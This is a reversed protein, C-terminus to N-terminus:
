RENTAEDSNEKFAPADLRKAEVILAARQALEQARQALEDDTLLALDEGDRSQNIRVNLPVKGWIRETVLKWAKVDGNMVKVMLAQIGFELKTLHEFGQIGCSENGAAFLMQRIDRNRMRKAINNFGTPNKPPDGPKVIEANFAATKPM